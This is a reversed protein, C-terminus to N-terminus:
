FQFFISAVSLSGWSVLYMGTCCGCLIPVGLCREVPPSAVLSPGLARATDPTSSCPTGGTGSTLSLEQGSADLSSSLSLTRTDQHGPSMM